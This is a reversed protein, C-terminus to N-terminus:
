RQRKRFLIEATRNPSRSQGFWHPAPPETSDGPLKFDYNLLIYALMAKIENVAFFRGPCAPRGYGFFLFNPELSVMQHKLHELNGEGERMEAFRFGKFTNADEYIAPDFHTPASAIAIRVGRPLVTGDSLKYETRTKRSMSIASLGTVRSTEKMFSDLRRMKGMSEKTWGFEEITTEIEERLPEFYEQRAALEFLINSLTISTTHIAAINISIVRSAFEDLTKYGEPATDLLWSILDNPRGEWKNTGHKEDMEVRDQVLPAIYREVKKLEAPFKSLLKGLIPRVIEPFLNLFNATAFIHITMNEQIRRYDPNRCLPLGVFLRNTTRCVIPILTKHVQYPTWENTAPMIDKFSEAIEEKLDGFRSPFGRTLPGRVVDIHYPAEHSTHSYKGMIYKGQLLDGAADIFSLQDETAKRFDEVLQTGNAVIMWRGSALLNPVKFVRGPYKEYGEQILQRGNRVFKWAAIYSSIFGDPGLTPIHRLKRATITFLIWQYVIWAVAGVGLYTLYGM